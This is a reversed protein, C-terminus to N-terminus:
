EVGVVRSRRELTERIERLVIRPLDLKEWEGLGLEQLVEEETLESRGLFESLEIASSRSLGIGILSLLTTTGVGFELFLELRLEEPFDEARGVEKFHFRLIDVYASLFKPAKFRAIDEIRQFTERIVTAYNFNEEDVTVQQRRRVRIMNAIIEAVRKGRMWDVTIIASALQFRPTNFANDLTRNIRAFVNTLIEVADESEPPAPLLEECDGDYARFEALLGQM